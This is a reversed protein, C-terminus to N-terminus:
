HTKAPPPSSGRHKKKHAYKSQPRSPASAAHPGGRPREAGHGGGKSDKGKAYSFGRDDRRTGHPKDSRKGDPRDPRKGDPKNRKEWPKKFSKDKDRQAFTPKGNPRTRAETPRTDSPRTRADSSRAHADTPPTRTARPRKESPHTHKDYPRRTHSENNPRTRVESPRSRAEPAPRPAAVADIAQTAAALDDSTHAGVRSIHGEKPKNTRLSDAFKDAFEAVIQFRTDRDFIKIAGIESKSVGGARCILPLLWRPDANRDRGVDLRFWVM